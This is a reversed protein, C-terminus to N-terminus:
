ASIFANAGQFEIAYGTGSQQPNWWWGSQPSGPQPPAPTAGGALSLRQIRDTGGPWTITAHMPDSFQVAFKGLTGGFSDPRYAGTLTQGGSYIGLTGTYANDSMAGISLSWTAEGSAAYFYAGLLLSNSQQEIFYGTGPKAPNWWWGTQFTQVQAQAGISAPLVAALVLFLLSHRRKM